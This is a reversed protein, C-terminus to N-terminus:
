HVTKKENELEFIFDCSPCQTKISDISTVFVTECVPCTINTNEKNEIKVKSMHPKPKVDYETGCENCIVRGDSKWELYGCCGDSGGMADCSLFKDLKSM